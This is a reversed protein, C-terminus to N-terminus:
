LESTGAFEALSQMLEQWPTKPRDTKEATQAQEEDDDDDDDDVVAVQEYFTDVDSFRVAHQGTKTTQTGISVMSGEQSHVTKIAVKWPGEEGGKDESELGTGNTVEVHSNDSSSSRVRSITISQVKGERKKSMDLSWDGQEDSSRGDERNRILDSQSSSMVRHKVRRGRFRADVDDWVHKWQDMGDELIILKQRTTESERDDNLLGDVQVELAKLQLKLYLLESHDFNLDAKLAENESQLNLAERTAEEVQIAHQDNLQHMEDFRHRLDTNARSVRELITQAQKLLRDRQAAAASNKESHALIPSTSKHGSDQSVLKPPALEDLTAGPSPPHDASESYDDIFGSDRMSRRHGSTHVAGRVSTELQDLQATIADCTDSSPHQRLMQAGLNNLRLLVQQIEPSPMADSGKQSSSAEDTFYDSFPSDRPHLLAMQNPSTTPTIPDQSDMVPATHRRSLSGFHHLPPSSRSTRFPSSTFQPTYQELESDLASTSRGPKLPQHTYERKHYRSSPGPVHWSLGPAPAPTLSPSPSPM